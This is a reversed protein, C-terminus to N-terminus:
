GRCRVLLRGLGVAGFRDFAGLLRIGLSKVALLALFEAGFALLGRHVLRLLLAVQTKGMRREWSSPCSYLTIGDPWLPWGASPYTEAERIGLRSGPQLEAGAKAYM